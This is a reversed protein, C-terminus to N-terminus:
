QPGGWGTDALYSYPRVCPSHGLTQLFCEFVMTVTTLTRLFLEGLPVIAEM